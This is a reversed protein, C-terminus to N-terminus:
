TGPARPGLLEEPGWIWLSADKLVLVLAFVVAIPVLVRAPPM